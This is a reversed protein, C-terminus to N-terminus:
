ELNRILPLFEEWDFKCIPHQAAEAVCLVTNCM